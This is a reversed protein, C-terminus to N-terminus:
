PVFVFSGDPNQQLYRLDSYLTNGISEVGSFVESGATAANGSTFNAAVNYVNSADVYFWYLGTNPDYQFSYAHTAQTVPIPPSAKPGSGDDYGVLGNMDTSTKFWGFEV